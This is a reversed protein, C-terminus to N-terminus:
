RGATLPLIWPFQMIIGDAFYYAFPILNGASGNVFINYANKLQLQDEAWNKAKRAVIQNKFADSFQLLYNYLASKSWERMNFEFLFNSFSEIKQSLKAELDVTSANSKHAKAIDILNNTFDLMHQEFLAVTASNTTQGYVVKIADTLASITKKLEEDLIALDEGGNFISVIISRLATVYNNILDKINARFTDRISMLAPTRLNSINSTIPYVNGCTSSMIPYVNGHGTNKTLLAHEVTVPHTFHEEKITHTVVKYM